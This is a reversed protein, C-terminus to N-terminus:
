QVFLSSLTGFLDKKIRDHRSLLKIRQCMADNLRFCEGALVARGYLAFLTYREARNFIKM